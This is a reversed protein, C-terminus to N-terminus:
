RGKLRLYVEREAKFIATHSEKRTETVFHDGQMKKTGDNLFRAIRSHDIGDKGYFGVMSNGTGAVEENTTNAAISNALHKVSKKRSENYHRNRTKNELNTKLIEAGAMTMAKKVKYTPINKQINKIWSELQKDMEM